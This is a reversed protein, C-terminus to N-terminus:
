NIAEGPQGYGASNASGIGCGQRNLYIEHFRSVGSGNGWELGADYGDFWDEVDPQGACSRYYANWYKSPPIVPPSPRRNMALDEYAQFFGRKFHCSAGGPCQKQWDRWAHLACQHGTFKTVEADWWPDYWCGVARRPVCDTCGGNRMGFQGITTLRVAPGPVRVPFPLAQCGSVFALTCFAFITRSM